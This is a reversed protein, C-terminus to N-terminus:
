LNQKELEMQQKPNNQIMKSDDSSSHETNQNRGIEPGDMFSPDPINSKKDASSSNQRLLNM